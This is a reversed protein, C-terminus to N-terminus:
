LSIGDNIYEGNPLENGVLRRGTALAVLAIDIRESFRADLDIGAQANRPRARFLPSELRRDM